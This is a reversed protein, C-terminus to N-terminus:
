RRLIGLMNCKLIAKLNQAKSEQKLHPFLPFQLMATTWLATAKVTTNTFSRIHYQMETKGAHHM